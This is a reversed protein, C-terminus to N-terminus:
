FGTAPAVARVMAALSHSVFNRQLSRALPYAVLVKWNGPRSFSLIDFCVVDTGRDWEVMFREEGQEAHEALTGYAFGIRRVPGDEDVVYVIRCFNLSWFGFHKILLGVTNGFVISTTPEYLCVGLVDFMRWRHLADSARAFQAAGHGLEVRGSLIAYGPPLKGGTAGVERYSYQRDRQTGLIARVQDESPRTLFFM